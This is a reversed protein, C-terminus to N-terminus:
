ANQVDPTLGGRRSPHQLMRLNSPERCLDVDDERQRGRMADFHFSLTLNRSFLHRQSLCSPSRSPALRGSISFAGGGEKLSTSAAAEAGGISM